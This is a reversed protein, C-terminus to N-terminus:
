DAMLLREPRDADFIEDVFSALAVAPMTLAALLKAVSAMFAFAFVVASCFESVVKSVL